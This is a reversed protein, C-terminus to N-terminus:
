TPFFTWERLMTNVHYSDLIGRLISKAENTFIREQTVKSQNKKENATFLVAM